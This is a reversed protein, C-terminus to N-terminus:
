EWGPSQTLKYGRSEYLNIQNLGIPANYVRDTFVDRDKVAEPLFYGVMETANSGDYVVVQGNEKQVQLKGIRSESILSPIEKQVDVWIGKLIDPNKNGSMNEIKKWRKIDLLRSFEQYLEMRRERRIEWLLSSVDSDRDPDVPLKALSMPSTKVVGKAIAEEALPRNRIENISLNIDSQSISGEGLSELEAKAEIWNLLVEAYRMVPFDNTNTSSSYKPPYDGKDAYAPGVRDIFKVTYLLAAAQSRPKDWFTAEFRPDRTKVLNELDFIKTNSLSSSQWVEGDACIFSKVLDLNASFSQNETLNCYSAICHTISQGADYHRFLICEKNGSLDDSGFLSRFDGDIAYKGSEIIIDAAEQSFKLYKKARENDNMQYKQWTGEFLMWRSIFGAAIYKNLNQDGDNARMNALVYKFDEYVADMVDNRPTRDKYLEDFDNTNLLKDYYPVDGFVNVLRCYDLARFFRAVSSWHNYSEESLIDSMKSDMRDLMLNSKRIWGFYWTPGNYQQLWAPATSTGSTNSTNANSGRSTPVSTEFLSQVGSSVVDDNFTLGRIPVYDSGFGTNYGTFFHTYYENAYLRVNEERTWYNNDDPSNLQPRDLIDDSCGSLFLIWIILPLYLSRKIIEKTKM